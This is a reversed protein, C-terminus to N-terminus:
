NRDWWSGLDPQKSPKEGTKPSYIVKEKEEEIAEKQTEVITDLRLRLSEIEPMGSTYIPNTALSELKIPKITITWTFKKDHFMNAEMNLNVIEYFKGNYKTYVIDGIAPEHSEFIKESEPSVPFNNNDLDYKSAQEFHSMSVLVDYQDLSEIGFISVTHSDPLFTFHGKFPFKREVRRNDDEGFIPDYNENYSVIYYVMPTGFKVLAETQLIDYTAKESEYSNDEQFHFYDNPMYSFDMFPNGTAM